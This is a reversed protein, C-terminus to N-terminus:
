LVGRRDVFSSVALDFTDAALQSWISM